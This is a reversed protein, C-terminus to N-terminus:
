PPPVQFSRIPLTGLKPVDYDLQKREAQRFLSGGGSRGELGLLGKLSRRVLREGLREAVSRGSKSQADAQQRSPQLSRCRPDM